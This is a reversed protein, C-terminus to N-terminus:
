ENVRTRESVRARLLKGSRRKILVKRVMSIMKKAGSGTSRLSVFADLRGYSTSGEVCDATAGAGPASNRIGGDASEDGCMHEIGKRHHRVRDLLGGPRGRTKGMVGEPTRAFGRGARIRLADPDRGVNWDSQSDVSELSM